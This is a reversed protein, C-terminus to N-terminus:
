GTRGEGDRGDDWVAYKTTHSTDYKRDRPLERASPFSFKIMLNEKGEAQLVVQIGLGNKILSIVDIIRSRKRASIIIREGSAEAVNITKVLELLLIEFTSIHTIWRLLKSYKTQDKIEVLEFKNGYPKFKDLFLTNRPMSRVTGCVACGQDLLEQILYTAVYGSAGTVLIKSGPPVAPM